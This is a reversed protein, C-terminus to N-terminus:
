KLCDKCGCVIEFGDEMDGDVGSEGDADTMEANESGSVCSGESSACSTRSSVFSPGPSEEEEGSDESDAMYADEGQASVMVYTDEGELLTGTGTRTGAAESAREERLRASCDPCEVGSQNRYEINGPYYLLPCNVCNGLHSGCCV